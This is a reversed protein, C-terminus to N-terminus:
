DGTSQTGKQGIVTVATPSVSEQCVSGSTAAAFAVLKQPSGYCGEEHGGQLPQLHGAELNGGFSPSSRRHSPLHRIKAAGKWVKVEGWRRGCVHLDLEM